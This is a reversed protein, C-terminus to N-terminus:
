NREAKLEGVAPRLASTGAVVDDNDERKQQDLIQKIEVGNGTVTLKYRM